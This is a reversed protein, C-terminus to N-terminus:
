GTQEYYKEAADRMLRVQQMDGQQLVKGQTAPLLFFVSIIWFGVLFAIFIGAQTLFDKNIKM